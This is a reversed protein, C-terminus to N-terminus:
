MFFDLNKKSLFKNIPKNILPIYVLLFCKNFDRNMLKEYRPNVVEKTMFSNFLYVMESSLCVNKAIHAIYVRVYTCRHIICTSYMHYSDNTLTITIVFIRQLKLKESSTAGM